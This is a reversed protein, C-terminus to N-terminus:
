GLDVANARAVTAAAPSADVATVRLDPRRAALACAICGSGTGLDVITPHRGTAPPPLLELAWDVLMETEPRPVLVAATIRFRLGHFEEWGLIRQLPERTARRRVDHAYRRAARTPLDHDADLYLASRRIGLVSALLWEADARASDIGAATLIEGAAALAARRTLTM